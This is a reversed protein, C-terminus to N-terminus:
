GGQICQNAACLYPCPELELFSATVNEASRAQQCEHPGSAGAGVQMSVSLKPRGPGDALQRQKV